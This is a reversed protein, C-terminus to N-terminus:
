VRIRNDILAVPDVHGGLFTCLPSTVQQALPDLKPSGDSPHEATSLTGPSTTVSM